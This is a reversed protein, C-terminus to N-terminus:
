SALSCFFHSIFEAGHDSIVHGLVGHKSFVHTLFLQAVQPADITNFTPIFLSQKTLRDVVVLIVMFGDSVPLQEIFDMSVSEWPHILIPLQKLLRYPKHCWAKTCACSTCSRVYDKVMRRLGPWHYRCHILEMTKTERFHGATTHDHHNHIIQMCLTGEDPVYLHDHFLLHGDQEM